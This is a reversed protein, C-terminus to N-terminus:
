FPKMNNMGTAKIIKEKTRYRLRYMVPILVLTLFTAFTLGFIITWSLPSFFISSDGGLHINPDLQTFLSVFDINIGLALPILGLCTTLATLIVPTIRITGATIIAENLPLGDKLKEDIFEVLLIGNRIVIGALAVLGMGSMLISFPMNFLSFGILVGIVSFLIESLIIAPKSISNFQTILIFLILFISLMMSRGLFAQTEAQDETEGTIKFDIGEPKKYNDIAKQIQPNIEAASFGGLVNSQISIVRKLNIRNIGGYTNQYVPTVVSSLPISRLTGTNMDRYTIKLDLLRDINKRQYENYRLQIPYQDEGDRFKSIEKGQIATRIEGGIQGSSIGEKMARNRDIAIILEPKKTDFDIKLEEIGPIKLSDLYRMFKNTEAILEEINESSVEINIPKGTPPGMKNKDVTIVAGPIDKVSERIKEMIKITSMGYRKHYEVFNIAIKGKNSTITGSDFMNESAGLAVNAVVSEVIPNNEGLVARIRKEVLRTVSDTVKIDTGVPMKIYTMITQPENEPFFVIQPKVLGFLILSFFFLGIVSSLIIVSNRKILAWRLFTEYKHVFRPWVNTQFRQIVKYGILNHGLYSLAMFIIFNAFGSWGIVHFPVSLLIISGGILLIKKKSFKSDKRLDDRKMFSVAYVPNFLYAIILSAFLALILTIPIYFMFNGVVGPWFALPIFPALTTLTGSFIPLFVEGAAKKAALAIELKEKNFIRHTNEIVVIADDVVIGLAFIFSFMVLMNMTFDIGPLIIYCLLMALPISLGVFMANTPGMFFMLVLTVLIFGIIITNNLETLTTRTFHSMDGTIVVNLDHPFKESKLEEVAKKVKDSTEILNKGSKKIVNLTIVNEGNLRAYSEREKFSDVVEAIEGLRVQAGSSSGVYVNRITEVDAFEGVIRISRKMGQMEITGGAVTVGFQM